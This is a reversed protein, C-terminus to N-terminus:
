ENVSGDGTASLSLSSENQFESDWVLLDSFAFWDYKLASLRKRANLFSFGHVNSEQLVIGVDKLIHLYCKLDVTMAHVDMRLTTRQQFHEKRLM